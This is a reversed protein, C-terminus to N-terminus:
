RSLLDRLTDLVLKPGDGVSLSKVGRVQDEWATHMVVVPGHNRASFERVLELKDVHPVSHGIFAADFEGTKCENLGAVFGLASVVRYGQQEFLLQRTRMLIEDNSICLLKYAVNIGKARHM